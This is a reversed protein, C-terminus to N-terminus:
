AKRMQDPDLIKTAQLADHLLMGALMAAVFAVIEVCGTVLATLALGPCLGAIGRGATEV